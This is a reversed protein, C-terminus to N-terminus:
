SSRKTPCCRSATSRVWGSGPSGFRVTGGEPAVRRRVGRFLREDSGHPVSRLHFFLFATLLAMVIAFAGFKILTPRLSRSVRTTWDHGHQTAPGAIPGYLLQKLADSNILV